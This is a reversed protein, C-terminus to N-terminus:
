YIYLFYSYITIKMGARHSLIDCLISNKYSKAYENCGSINCLSTYFCVPTMKVTFKYANCRM